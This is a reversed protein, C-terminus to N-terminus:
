SYAVISTSAIDPISWLTTACLDFIEFVAQHYIIHVNKLNKRGPNAYGFELRLLSIEWKM